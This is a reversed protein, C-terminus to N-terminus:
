RFQRIIHKSDMGPPRFRQRIGYGPTIRWLEIPAALGVAIPVLEPPWWIQNVHRLINALNRPILGHYLAFSDNLLSIVALQHQPVLALRLLCINLKVGRIPSLCSVRRRSALDVHLCTNLCTVLGLSGVVRGGVDLRPLASGVIRAPRARAAPNKPADGMCRAPSAPLWRLSGSTFSPPASCPHRIM